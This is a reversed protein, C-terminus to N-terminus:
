LWGTCYPSNLSEPPRPLVHHRVHFERKEFLVDLFGVVPKVVLEGWQIPRRLISDSLRKEVDFFLINQHRTIGMSQM